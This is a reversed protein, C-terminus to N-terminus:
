NKQSRKKKQVRKNKPEYIEGCKYCIWNFFGEKKGRQINHELGVKCKNCELTRSGKFPHLCTNNHEDTTLYCANGYECEKQRKDIRVMKLKQEKEKKDKSQLPIAPLYMPSIDYRPYVPRAIQIDIPASVVTQLTLTCVLIENYIPNERDWMKVIDFVSSIDKKNLGTQRLSTMHQEVKSFNNPLEVGDEQLATILQINNFLLELQGKVDIDVRKSM